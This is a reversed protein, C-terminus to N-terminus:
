QFYILEPPILEIDHPNTKKPKQIIQIDTSYNEVAIYDGQAKFTKVSEKITQTALLNQSFTLLFSHSIRHSYILKRQELNLLFM